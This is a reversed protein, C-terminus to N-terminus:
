VIIFGSDKEGNIGLCPYIRNNGSTMTTYTAYGGVDRTLEIVKGLRYRGAHKFKVIDGIKVRHTKSRTSKKERRAM